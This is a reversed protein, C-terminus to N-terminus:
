DKLHSYTALPLDSKSNHTVMKRGSHCGVKIKTWKIEFKKHMHKLLIALVSTIKFYILCLNLTAPQWDSLFTTVWSELFSKGRTFGNNDFYKTYM